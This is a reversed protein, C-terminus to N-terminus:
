LTPAIYTPVIGTRAVNEELMGKRFIGSELLLTKFGMANGGLIDTHLTDGVMLVNQPKGAYGIYNLAHEFMIKSPKGLLLPKKNFDTKQYFDHAYYGPTVVFDDGVPGGADPNSIIVNEINKSSKILNDQMEMSWAAGVHFILTKVSKNIIGGTSNLNQIEPHKEALLNNNLGTAAFTPLDSANNLYAEAVDLSTVVEKATFDYGLKKYKAEVTRTGNMTDNSVICFPIKSERLYAIVELAEPIVEHGRCLVGYSDLLVLDIGELAEKLGAIKVPPTNSVPANEYWYTSDEYIDMINKLTTKM